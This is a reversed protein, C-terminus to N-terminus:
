SPTSRRPPAIAALKCPRAKTIIANLRISRTPTLSKILEADVDYVRLACDHSRGIQYQGLALAHVIETASSILPLLRLEPVIKVIHSAKM